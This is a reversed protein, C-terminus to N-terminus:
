GYVKALREDRTEVWKQYVGTNPAPYMANHVDHMIELAQHISYHRESSVMIAAAITATVQQRTATLLQALENPPIPSTPVTM